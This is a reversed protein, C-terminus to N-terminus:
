NLAYYLDPKLVRRGWLFRKKYFTKKEFNYIVVSEGASSAHIFNNNGLYIGVHTVKGTRKKKTDFFVMDGRELDDYQIFQGVRAQDKSVRPINIGSDRYVWQTFGSCDFKSPGTAGWVYPTGLFSKAKSEIEEIVSLKNQEPYHEKKYSIYTIDPSINEQYTKKESYQKPQSFHNSAETIGM